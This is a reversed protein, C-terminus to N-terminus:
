YYYFRDEETLRWWIKERINPDLCYDKSCIFFRYFRGEKRSELWFDYKPHDSLHHLIDEFERYKM